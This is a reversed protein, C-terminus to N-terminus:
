VEQVSGAMTLIQMADQLTVQGDGDMDLALDIKQLGNAIKMAILADLATVMGDGSGDGPPRPGITLAGEVLLTSLLRNQSNTAISLTPHLTTMGDAEAIVRFVVVAVQGDGSVPETASFGIRVMGTESTSYQMDAELGPFGAEVGLVELIGPDFSLSFALNKLDAANQLVVPVRITSGRPAVMPAVALSLDSVAPDLHTTQTGITDIKPSFTDRMVSVQYKSAESLAPTAASVVIHYVGTNPAIVMVIDGAGHNSKTSTSGPNSVTFGAGPGSITNVKVLYVEGQQAYFRFADTDDAPSISGGVTNGLAIETARDVTNSHQDMLSEDSIVRLSYTGVPNELQPASSITVIYNGTAPALWSVSKDEGYNSAVATDPNARTGVTLSVAETTGPSLEFTYQIGRGAYFSFRDVDDAPSIAGSISNGFVVPTASPVTESHKDQTAEEM